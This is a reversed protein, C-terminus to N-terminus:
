LFKTDSKVFVNKAWNGPFNQSFEVSDVVPTAPKADENSLPKALTLLPDASHKFDRFKIKFYEALFNLVYDCEGHVLLSAQKDKPTWQLNVIALKASKPWLNKYSKLVKLCLKFYDLPSSLRFVTIPNQSKTLIEINHWFKEPQNFNWYKTLIEIKPWFTFQFMQKTFIEIKPWFKFQFM